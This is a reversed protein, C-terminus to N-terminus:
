TAYDTEIEKLKRVFLTYNEAPNGKLFIRSGVCVSDVGM